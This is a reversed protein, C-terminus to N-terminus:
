VGQSSKFPSKFPLSRGKRRVVSTVMSLSSKRALETLDISKRDGGDIRLRQSFSSRFRDDSTLERSMKRFCDDEDDSNSVYTGTPLTKAHRMMTAMDAGFSPSLQQSAQTFYSPVCPVAIGTKARKGKLPQRPTPLGERRTNPRQVEVDEVLSTNSPTASPKSSVTQGAIACGMSDRAVNTKSRKGLVSSRPQFPPENSVAPRTPPHVVRAGGFFVPSIHTAFGHEASNPVPRISSTNLLSSTTKALVEDGDENESLDENFVGSALDVHAASVSRHGEDDHCDRSDLNSNLNARAVLQRMFSWSIPSDADAPRRAPTQPSGILIDDEIDGTGHVDGRGVLQTAQNQPGDDEIDDLIMVDSRNPQVEDNQFESETDDDSDNQAEELAGPQSSEPVETRSYRSSVLEPSSLKSHRDSNHDTEREDAEAETAVRNEPLKMEEEEAEGDEAVFEDEPLEMEEDESEAEEDEGEESDDSTEESGSESEHDSGTEVEDESETTSAYDPSMTTVEVEESFTVQRKVKVVSKHPGLDDGQKQAEEVGAEVQMEVEMEDANHQVQASQIMKGVPEDDVVEADPHCITRSSPESAQEIVAVPPNVSQVNEMSYEAPAHQIAHSTETQALIVNPDPDLEMADEPAEAEDVLLEQALPKYVQTSVPLEHVAQQRVLTAEDHGGLIMPQAKVSMTEPEKKAAFSGSPVTITVAPLVDVDILYEHGKSEHKPLARGRPAHNQRFDAVNSHNEPVGDEVIELQAFYKLSTAKPTRGGGRQKRRPTKVRTRVSPQLEALEFGDSVAMKPSLKPGVEVVAPLVKFGSLTEISAKGVKKTATRDSIRTASLLNERQKRSTAIRSSPSRM